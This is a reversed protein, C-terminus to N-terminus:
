ALRVTVPSDVLDVMSGFFVGPEYCTVVDGDESSNASRAIAAAGLSWRLGVAVLIEVGDRRPLREQPFFLGYETAVYESSGSFGLDRLVKFAAEGCELSAYAGNPRFNGVFGAIFVILHPL